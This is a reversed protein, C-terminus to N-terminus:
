VGSVVLGARLGGGPECCVVVIPHAKMGPVGSLGPKSAMTRNKRHTLLPECVNSKEDCVQGPQCRAKERTPTDAAGAALNRVNPHDRAVPLRHITPGTTLAPRSQGNRSTALVGVAPSPLAALATSYARWVRSFRPRTGLVHSGM